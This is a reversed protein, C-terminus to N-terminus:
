PKTTQLQSLSILTLTIKKGDKTLSFANLYGNYMVRMDFLWLRGLLVQYANMAKVDFWLRDEYNKRISFSVLCRSNVWLDKSQNLLQIKYPHPYTSTQLNLKEVMGNSIVNACSGGDVILSCVKGQVSHFINERQEDKERRPNNLVRRLILM